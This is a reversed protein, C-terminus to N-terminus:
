AGVPKEILSIRYDIEGDSFSIDMENTELDTGGGHWDLGLSELHNEISHRIDIMEM